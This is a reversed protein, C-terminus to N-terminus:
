QPTKVLRGTADKKPKAPPQVQNGVPSQKEAESPGVSDVASTLSPEHGTAVSGGDARKAGPVGDKKVQSTSSSKSNSHHQVRVTDIRIVTDMHNQQQHQQQQEFLTQGAEGQKYFFFYYVGGAVAATLLLSIIWGFVSSGGSAPPEGGGGGQSPTYPKIEGAALLAAGMAALKEKQENRAGQRLAAVVDRHMELERAFDSDSALREKFDALEKGTLQGALYRDMQSIDQENLEM